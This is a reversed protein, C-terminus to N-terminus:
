RTRAPCRRRLWRRPSPKPTSMVWELAATLPTLLSVAPTGALYARPQVRCSGSRQCGRALRSDQRSSSTGGAFLDRRRGYIKRRRALAMVKAMSLEGYFFAPPKICGKKMADGRGCRTTEARIAFGISGLDPSAGLAPDLRLGQTHTLTGANLWRDQREAFPGCTIGLRRARVPRDIPAVRRRGVDPSLDRHARAAPCCTRVNERRRAPAHPMPDGPVSRPGRRRPRRCTASRAASASRVRAPGCSGISM